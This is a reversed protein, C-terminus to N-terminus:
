CSAGALRQSPQCFALLLFNMHQCAPYWWPLWVQLLALFPSWQMDQKSQLLYWTQALTVSPQCEQM